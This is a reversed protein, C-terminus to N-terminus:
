VTELTVATQNRDEPDEDNKTDARAATQPLSRGGDHSAFQEPTRYGLATHPRVTNYDRRWAEIVVRAEAVCAFWHQNLCEDRLRGNFSEIYANQVPKGPAIFHLAVGHRYAWADVVRSTFETGNDIILRAPTGRTAAVRELVRVVRPGPLSHDVEIALAERTFADLLTFVRFPRRDAIRDQMFDMAWHENPRTPPQPRLRVVASRHRRPRRRRLALGEETYLRYIRKHNVRWGERRLLVYLQKYGARLRVAALELLRGRLPAQSPRRTRYRVLARYVGVSRCARRESLQYAERAWHVLARRAAPRVM